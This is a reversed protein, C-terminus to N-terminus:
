KKKGKQIGKAIINAMGEKLFENFHKGIKLMLWFWAFIAVPFILLEM